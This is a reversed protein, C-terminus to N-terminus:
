RQAVHGHFEFDEARRAAHQNGRRQGLGLAVEDAGCKAVPVTYLKGNDPCYVMFIDAQGHYTRKVWKGNETTMSRTSFRVANRDLKGTKVQIRTFVGNEEVVLDYRNRDGFPVLVNLGNQLLAALAQAESIDGKQKSNM